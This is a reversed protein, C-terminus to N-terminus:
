GPAIRPDVGKFWRLFRDLREVAQEVIREGREASALLPDSLSGSPPTIDDMDVAFLVDCGEFRVGSLGSPMIGLFEKVGWDEAKSVDVTGPFLYTWVSGM